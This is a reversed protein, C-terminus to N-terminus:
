AAEAPISPENDIQKEFFDSPSASLGSGYYTPWFGSQLCEAFINLAARNQRKGYWIYQNDLPKINYAHPRKPEIFLLVHDTVQYGMVEHIATSILAMQQHYGFKKIANLCGRESADATTKLDAIVTDAPISDPRAKVWVGTRDQYIISREIDGRLHDVFTRDNAVRNAMGEIQELHEPVLVVKGAKIQSERWEKADNTRWDKFKTPRVSYIARFDDEGLLLTHVAKGLSFHDKPEEPARDPNLYSNDWYKLPCGDPPAIERLGSSSISPGACCDSHYSDIPLGSIVGPKDITKGDWIRVFSHRRAMKAGLAGISQMADTDLDTM